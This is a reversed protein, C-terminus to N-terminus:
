RNNCGVSVYTALYLQIFMPEFTNTMNNVTHKTLILTHKEDREVTFTLTEKHDKDETKTSLGRTQQTSKTYESVVSKILIVLINVFNTSFRAAYM